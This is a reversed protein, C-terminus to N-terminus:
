GSIQEPSWDLRIKENVLDRALSQIRERAINRRNLANEHAQKPRYGRLGNNRKLKRSTTEKYRLIVKAIETQKYGMKLLTNIQHRQECTLQKYRM